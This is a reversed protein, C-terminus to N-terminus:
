GRQFEGFYVQPMATVSTFAEICPEIGDADYTNYPRIGFVQLPVTYDMGLSSKCSPHHGM